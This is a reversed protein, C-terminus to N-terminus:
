KIIPLNFTQSFKGYVDDMDDIKGSSCSILRLLVQYDMYWCAPNGQLLSCIFDAGGHFNTRGSLSGDTIHTDAYYIGSYYHPVPENFSVYWTAGDYMDFGTTLTMGDGTYNQSNGMHIGDTIVSGNALTITGGLHYDAGSTYNSVPQTTYPPSVQHVFATLDTGRSRLLFESGYYGYSKKKYRDSHYAGIFVDSFSCVIDIHILYYNRQETESFANWIDYEVMCATTRDNKVKYNYYKDKNITINLPFYVKYPQVLGTLEKANNTPAPPAMSKQIAGVAWDCVQGQTYESFFGAKESNGLTNSATSKDSPCLKMFIGASSPLPGSFIWLPREGPLHTADPIGHYPDYCGLAKCVNSFDSEVGGEMALIVGSAYMKQLAAFFQPNSVIADFENALFLFMDGQRPEISINWPQISAYRKVINDVMSSENPTVSAASFYYLMRGQAHLNASVEDHSPLERYATIDDEPLEPKDCPTCSTVIGTVVLCLAAAFNWKLIQKKM